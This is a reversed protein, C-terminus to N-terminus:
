KTCRDFICNYIIFTNFNVNDITRFLQNLFLQVGNNACSPFINFM